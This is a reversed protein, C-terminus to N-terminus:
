DDILIYRISRELTKMAIEQAAGRVGVVAVSAQVGALPLMVVQLVAESLIM